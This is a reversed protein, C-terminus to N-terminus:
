ALCSSPLLRKILAVRDTLFPARHSPLCPHALSLLPLGSAPCNPHDSGTLSHLSYNLPRIPALFPNIIPNCFLISFTALAPRHLADRGPDSFGAALGESGIIRSAFSRKRQQGGM